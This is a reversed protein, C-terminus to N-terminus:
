VFVTCLLPSFQPFKLGSIVGEWGWVMRRGGVRSPFSLDCGPMSLAHCILLLLCPVSWSGFLIKRGLICGATWTCFSSMVEKWIVNINLQQSGWIHKCRQHTFHSRPPCFRSLKILALKGASPLEWVQVWFQNETPHLLTNWSCVHVSLWQHGDTM